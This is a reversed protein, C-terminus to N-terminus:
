QDLVTDIESRLETAEEALMSMCTDLLSHLADGLEQPITSDDGEWMAENKTCYVLWTLEQIFRALSGVEGLGKSLKANALRGLQDDLALMSKTCRPHYKNTWVRIETRIYKSITSLRAKESSVEIGFRKAAAVIKDWVKSKEGAPIGQTQDFRALANRVHAADHIPLKWTSTVEPDGVYAFDSSPLDRGAVRKTKGAKAVAPHAQPGLKALNGLPLTKKFKRIEVTGDSKVYAFHADALCPNDVLSAESPDAVYRMCGKFVPDPMLEGVIRGGQSFGTYVGEDVKKWADDDVVKFGMFIEKDDDRFEFGICKGAASLQHMERLPFLNRGGTAKSMEAIVAEYFPKSKEYDCVEDEKDPREATVIGWVERKTPDVKAFPIFKSFQHNMSKHAKDAAEEDKPEFENCCDGPSVPLLGQDNLLDAVEPDALVEPETCYGNIQFHCNGCRFPGESAKVYGTEATGVSKTTTLRGKANPGAVANAQAFASSEAEKKSKGEKIARSYASNWVELWQKRKSPPVNKPVESTSSYPM